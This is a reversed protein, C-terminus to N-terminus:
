RKGGAVGVTSNMATTGVGGVAGVGVGARGGGVEFSKPLSSVLKALIYVSLLLYV